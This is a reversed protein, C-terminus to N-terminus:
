LDAQGNANAVQEAFIVYTPSYFRGEDYKFFAYKKRTPDLVLAVDWPDGYGELHTSRDTHSLFCGLNPHSHYWGVILKDSHIGTLSQLLSNINQFIVSTASGQNGEVHGDILTYSRGKWTHQDGVLLGIVENESSRSHRLIQRFAQLSIYVEYRVETSPM